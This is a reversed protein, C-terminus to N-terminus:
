DATAQNERERRELTTHLRLAAHLALARWGDDIADAGLLERVRDLRYYLTTRHIRLRECTRRVDRAEDLYALATSRQELSGRDILLRADDSVVGVTAASLPLGSLVRWSGLTEWMRHSSPGPEIADIRAAFRARVAAQPLDAALPAAASGIHIARAGAARGIRHITRLVDDLSRTMTRAVIVAGGPEDAILFSRVPRERAALSALPDLGGGSGDLTRTTGVTFRFVRFEGESPLLGAESAEDVADSVEDTDIARRALTALAAARDRIDDDRTSLLPAMEAAIAIAIAIEQDDLVPTDFLWLYGNLRGESRIPVCVRPLM